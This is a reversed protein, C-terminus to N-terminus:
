MTDAIDILRDTEKLYIAKVYGRETLIPHDATCRIVRGDETTIKVIRAQKKTMTCYRYPKYEPQGTKINYSLVLGETGVMDAIRMSGKDTMLMTDGTVCAHDNEKIPVDDQKDDWRYGAMEKATNKCEPSFKILGRAMATQTDRIGNLVDNIAPLVRYKYRRTTSVNQATTPESGRLTTIFSAASPDIVVDLPAPIDATFRDMDQAYEEDTKPTGETRGSYYYERMCHWVGNYKGWLLAAFANYTGYDISLGWESPDGAPTDCVANKFMPYIIGEALTWLGLIYREYFVGSFNRKYQEKKAESLTLNDDMLFHLHLLHKQEAKDLWNEKFWHSPYEPNCNFWYKAGEVSCRSCAQNVFSEPMLAVEDFYMGAATLGQIKDQSREDQGGYLYFYNEKNARKIIVLGDSRKDNVNYGRSALMQKLLNLVNRRLAGVTKGCMGFNQGDYRAMAWMVYSLSMAISKGSRVAGDAIIGDMDRVPSSDVWWNLLQRQKKSFPQFEFTRQEM